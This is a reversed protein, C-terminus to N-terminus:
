YPRRDDGKFDDIPLRRIGIELIVVVALAFWGGVEILNGTRGPVVLGAAITAAIALILLVSLWSVRGFPTRM